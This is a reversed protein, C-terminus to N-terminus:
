KKESVFPTLLSKGCWYQCSALTKTESRLTVSKEAIDAHKIANKANRGAVFCPFLSLDATKKILITAKKASVKNWEQPIKSTAKM